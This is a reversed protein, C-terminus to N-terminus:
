DTVQTGTHRWMCAYPQETHVCQYTPEAVETPARMHTSSSISNGALSEGANLLYQSRSHQLTHTHTHTCAFLQLAPPDGLGQVASTSLGSSFINEKNM